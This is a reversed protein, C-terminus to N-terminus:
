RKREQTYGAHKKEREREKAKVRTDTKDRAGEILVLLPAFSAISDAAAQRGSVRLLDFSDRRTRFM